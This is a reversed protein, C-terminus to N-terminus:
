QRLRAVWERYRESDYGAEALLAASGDVCADRVEASRMLIEDIDYILGAASPVKAAQVCEDLESSAVGSLGLRDRIPFEQPVFRVVLSIMDTSPAGSYVRYGLVSVLEATCQVERAIAICWKTFGVTFGYPFEDDTLDALRHMPTAAGFERVIAEEFSACSERNESIISSLIEIAKESFVGKELRTTLFLSWPSMLQKQVVTLRHIASYLSETVEPENLGIHGCLDINVVDFPGLKRVHPWVVASKDALAEFRDPLVISDRSVTPRDRLSRLGVNQQDVSTGEPSVAGSDFGLFQFGSAISNAVSSNYLHRIDLLDAGPLGLYRVPLDEQRQAIIWELEHQWQKTRVYHKRPKHWPKFDRRSVKPLEYSADAFLDGSDFESLM